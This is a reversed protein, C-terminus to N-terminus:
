RLALLGAVLPSSPDEPWSLAIHSQPHPSPARLTAGHESPEPRLLEFWVDTSHPRVGWSTSLADVLRLGLRGVTFQDRQCIRVADHECGGDVVEGRVHIPSIVELEVHVPREGPGYKVANTILESLVLQLDGLLRDSILGALDDHVRARVQPVASVEPILEFQLM